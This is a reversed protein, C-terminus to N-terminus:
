VSLSSCPTTIAFHSPLLYCNGNHDIDCATFLEQYEELRKDLLVGSNAQQLDVAQAEISFCPVPAYMVICLAKLAYLAVTTM